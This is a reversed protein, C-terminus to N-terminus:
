GGTSEDVWTLTGSVNKLVRTKEVDYGAMNAFAEALM